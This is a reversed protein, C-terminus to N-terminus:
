VRKKMACDILMIDHWASWPTLHQQWPFNIRVPIRIKTHFVTSPNFGYGHNGHFGLKSWLVWNQVLKWFINVQTSESFPFLTKVLPPPPVKHGGGGQGGSSWFLRGQIPNFHCRRENGNRYKKTKSFDWTKWRHTMRGFGGLFSSALDFLKSSFGRNRRVSCTATQM